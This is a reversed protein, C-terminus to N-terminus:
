DLIPPHIWVWCKICKRPQLGLLRELAERILSYRVLMELQYFPDNMVYFGPRRSPFPYSYWKEIRRQLYVHLLVACLPHWHWYVSGFGSVTPYCVFLCDYVMSGYGYFYFVFRCGYGCYYGSKDSFYNARGHWLITRNFCYYENAQAM